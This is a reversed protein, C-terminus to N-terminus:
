TGIDHWVQQIRYLIQKWRPGGLSEPSRYVPPPELPSGTIATVEDSYPEWMKPLGNVVAGTDPLRTTGVPEISSGPGSSASEGNPCNHVLVPATGALAYFDHDGNGPITLDWMWGDRQAPVRGGDATATAGAPTRLREGKRLRSAQVWERLSPDWFLHNSTTHIVETRGGSRVTLDYLDTDHHVLVAAVPEASTKGTAVNTALVKDGPELRSIAITAGTALLVGTSATFSAGGCTAGALSDADSAADVTADATVDTAADLTGDVAMAGASDAGGTALVSADMGVALAAKACGGLSPHEACGVIASVGTVNGAVHLAKRFFSGFGGGGSSNGAAVPVPNCGLGFRQCSYPDAPRTAEAPQKPPVYVPATV